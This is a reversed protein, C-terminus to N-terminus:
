RPFKGRLDIVVWGLILLGVVASGIRSVLGPFRYFASKGGIGYSRLEGNLASNVGYLGLAVAVLDLWILDLFKM